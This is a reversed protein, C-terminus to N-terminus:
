RSTPSTSCSGAGTGVVQFGKHRVVGAEIDVLRRTGVVDGFWERQGVNELFATEDPQPLVAELHDNFARMVASMSQLAESEWAECGCEPLRFLEHAGAEGTAAGMNPDHRLAQSFQKGPTSDDLGM